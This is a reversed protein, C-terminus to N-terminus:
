HKDGNILITGFVDKAGWNMILASILIGNRMARIGINLALLIAENERRLADKV